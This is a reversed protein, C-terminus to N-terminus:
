ASPSAESQTRFTWIITELERLYERQPKGPSYVFGDVYYVRSLEKDVFVYSLFPGGMSLNNTKWLGRAEVAYKENFYLRRTKPPVLTEVVVYSTDNKEKDDYIYEKTVRNRFDTVKDFVEETTYDEYYVWINKDVEIGPLRLWTFQSESDEYEIRWGFPMRLSYQHNKMLASSVEKLEKSKYLSAKLRRKEIGNFHDKVFNRNERINAVLEEETRGFLFLVEQGRAWENQQSLYYREPEENIIKISNPTFYNKVRESNSSYNDLVAVIIINQAMKLIDNFEEPLIYRVNFEPEPRPLGAVQKRLIQDLEQGLETKRHVTDMVLIIEGAKGSARPQLDKNRKGGCATLLIVSAVAVVVSLGLNRM